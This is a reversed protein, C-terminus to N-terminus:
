TEPLAQIAMRAAERTYERCRVMLHHREFKNQGEPTALDCEILTRCNVSGFEKEFADVLKKVAAYCPEASDGPNNRGLKLGIAMIAGSVAGCMGSTRGAGSCFGTAIKPLVGSEIGLQEAVALLVSEACYYGGIFLDSSQYSVQDAIRDDM